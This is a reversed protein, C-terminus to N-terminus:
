ASKSPCRTLPRAPTRPKRPRELSRAVERLKPAITASDARLEDSSRGWDTIDAAANRFAIANSRKGYVPSIRLLSGAHVVVYRKGLPGLDFNEINLM